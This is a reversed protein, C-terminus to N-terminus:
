KNYQAQPHFVQGRFPLPIQMHRDIFTSELRKTANEMLDLGICGVLLASFGCLNEGRLISHSLSVNRNERRLVDVFKVSVCEFLKKEELVVLVPAVQLALTAPHGRVHWIQPLCELQKNVLLQGDV